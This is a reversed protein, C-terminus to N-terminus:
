QGPYVDLRAPVGRRLMRKLVPGDIGNRRDDHSRGARRRRRSDVEYPRAHCCRCCYLSRRRDKWFCGLVALPSGWAHVMAAHAAATRAADCMGAAAPTRHSAAGREDGSDVIDNAMQAGLLRSPDFPAIANM